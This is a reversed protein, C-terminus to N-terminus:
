YKQMESILEPHEEMYKNLEDINQRSYEIYKEETTGFSSFFKQNELDLHKKQEDSPLTITEELWIRTMKKYLITIKVFSEPNFERITGLEEQVRKFEEEYFRKDIGTDVQEKKETEKETPPKEETSVKDRNKTCSSAASFFIMFIILLKFASKRKM